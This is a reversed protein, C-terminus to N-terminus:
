WHRYAAQHLYVPIKQNINQENERYLPTIRIARLPIFGSELTPQISLNQRDRDNQWLTWIAQLDIVITQYQPEFLSCPDSLENIQNYKTHFISDSAYSIIGYNAPAIGLIPDQVQWLSHGTIQTQWDTSQLAQADDLTGSQDQWSRVKIKSQRVHPESINVLQTDLTIWHKQDFSFQIAVAPLLDSIFEHPDFSKMSIDISLAIALQHTSLFRPLDTTHDKFLASEKLSAPWTLTIGNSPLPKKIDLVEQPFSCHTTTQRQLQQASIFNKPEVTNPSTNVLSVKSIGGGLWQSVYFYDEDDRKSFQWPHLNSALPIKQVLSQTDHQYIWLDYDGSHLVYAYNDDIWLDNPIQGLPPQYIDRKAQCTYSNWNIKALSISALQGSLALIFWLRDEIVKPSQAGEMEQPYAGLELQCPFFEGSRQMRLLRDQNFDIVLLSDDWWALNILSLTAPDITDEQYISMMPWYSFLSLPDLMTTLQSWMQDLGLHIHLIKPNVGSSVFLDQHDASLDIWYGLDLNESTFRWHTIQPRPMDQDYLWAKLLDLKVRSIASHAVKVDQTLEMIGSSLIYLYEQSHTIKQPNAYPTYWTAIKSKTELDIFIVRGESWKGARFATDSVVLTTNDLHYIAQLSSAEVEAPQALDPQLIECASLIILIVLSRLATAMIKKITLILKIYHYITQSCEFYLSHSSTM